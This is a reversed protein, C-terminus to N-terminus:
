TRGGERAEHLYAFGGSFCQSMLSVVRVKPPLSALLAGLKRASISEHAGWLTIRNDLPDRHSRTGHDTVYILLTDGPHLRARLEALTRSLSAVTAPRLDVGPLASNEYTTLDRLLPDVHTGQLLWANEPEPERTALDPAPDGGDSSLVTLHDRPTAPAALRDGGGNIALVRLEGAAQGRAPAAALILALAITPARM